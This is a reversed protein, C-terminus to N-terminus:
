VVEEGSTMQCFVGGGGECSDISFLVQDGRTTQCCGGRGRSSKGIVLINEVLRKVASEGAEM